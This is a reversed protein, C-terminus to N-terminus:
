FSAQEVHHSQEHQEQHQQEEPGPEGDVQQPDGGDEEGGEPENSGRETAALGRIPVPKIPPSDRSAQAPASVLSNYKATHSVANPWLALNHDRLLETVLQADNGTIFHVEGEIVIRNPDSQGTSARGHPTRQSSTSQNGKEFGVM